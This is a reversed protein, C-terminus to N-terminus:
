CLDFWGTKSINVQTCISAGATDTHVSKCDQSDAATTKASIVFVDLPLRM